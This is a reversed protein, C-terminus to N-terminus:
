GANRACLDRVTEVRHEPSPHSSLWEFKVNSSREQAQQFRELVVALADCPSQSRILLDVAFRDADAEQSQSFTTMFPYTEAHMLVTPIIGVILIEAVLRRIQANRASHIHGLYVHGLDHAVVARLEEPPLALVGSTVTLSFESCQPPPSPSQNSSPAEQTEGIPRVPSARKMPEARVSVWANLASTDLVAFGIPCGARPPVGEQLTMLAALHPYVTMFDTPQFPRVKPRSVVACAGLLFVLSVILIARRM